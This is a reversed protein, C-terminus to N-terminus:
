ARDANRSNRNLVETTGIVVCSLLILISSVAAIVPSLEFRIGDWIKKPLTTTTPGALFTSMVVEDFSNLFAFLMAVIVGPRIIPFTVFLFARVPNAGLSMAIQELRIDFRELSASIVVVTYPFTIVTHGIILGGFSGNLGLFSFVYYTGVAIVIVPILLPSLVLAQLIAKGRWTSRALGYATAMGLLVSVVATAVAVMVSNITARMWAPDFLYAEYWRLSYGPPPMRLLASSSFSMPLIAILPLLLFGIVFWNFCALPVRRASGRLLKV